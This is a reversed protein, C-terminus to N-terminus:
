SGHRAAIVVHDADGMVLAVVRGVRSVAMVWSISSWTRSSGVYSPMPQLPSWPGGEPRPDSALSGTIVRVSGPVVM